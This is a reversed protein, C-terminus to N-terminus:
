LASRMTPTEDLMVRAISPHEELIRSVTREVVDYPLRAPIMKGGSRTRACLLVQRGGGFGDKEALMPYFDNLKPMLGAAKLEEQFILDVSRLLDASEKRVEGVVLLGFGLPPFPKRDIVTKPVGLLAAMDAIEGRFCASLPEVIQAGGIGEPMNQRNYMRDVYDTGFIFSTEDEAAGERLAETLCARLTRRKESAKQLGAMAAMLAESRDVIRLPMGIAEYTERVFDAEGARLLGTEVFVARVRDGYVRKAMEAAVTSDLGGSAAMIARGGQAAREELTEMGQAVAAEVTYWASCGCIPFLFNSLIAGATPDNRELEFQIGYLARSEDQFAVTCGGGSAALTVSAPLMLTQAERIPREGDEVGSFLRSEEFHVETRRHTIGVGACAGGLATLMRHSAYGQALVPIGLSLIEADLVGHGSEAGSLVIGKPSLARIQAATTSAPLILSFVREARIRRAIDMATRDSFSLVLITDDM